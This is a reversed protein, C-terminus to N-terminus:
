PESEVSVPDTREVKKNLRNGIGNAPHRFRAQLSGWDIVLKGGTVEHQNAWNVLLDLCAHDIYDLHEFNVHLEAGAPVQELRTALRPLRVFTAAGRVQLTVKNSDPEPSLSADLHSFTYLLKIAALM